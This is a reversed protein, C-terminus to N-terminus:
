KYRDAKWTGGEGQLVPRMKEVLKKLGGAGVFCVMYGGGGKAKIVAFVDAISVKINVEYVLGVGTIYKGVMEGDLYNVWAPNPDSSM